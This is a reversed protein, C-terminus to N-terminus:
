ANPEPTVSDVKRSEMIQQLYIQGHEPCCAVDRWRFTKAPSSSAPCTYYIKGCVKCERKVDFM